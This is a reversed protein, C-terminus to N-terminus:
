SLLGTAPTQHLYRGALLPIALGTLKLSARKAQPLEGGDNPDLTGLQFGPWRISDAQGRVTLTVIARSVRRAPAVARPSATTRVLYSMHSLQRANDMQALPLYLQGIPHPPM